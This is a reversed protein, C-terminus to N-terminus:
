DVKYKINYALGELYELPNREYFKQVIRKVRADKKKSAKKVAQPAEGMLLKALVSETRSQEERVCGIVDFINPHPNGVITSFRRHWGELKNTTRPQDNVVRDYVCWLKPSFTPRKLRPERRLRLVLEGEVGNGDIREYVQQGVYNEAIYDVFSAIQPPADEPISECVNNFYEVVRQEPVFALATVMRLLISYDENSIYLPMLGLSQIKRWHAQAYHFFCTALSDPTFVALVTKM